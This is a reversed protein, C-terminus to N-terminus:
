EVHSNIDCTITQHTGSLQLPNEASSPAACLTWFLPRHGFNTLTYIGFSLLTQYYSCYCHTSFDSRGHNGHNKPTGDGEIVLSFSPTVVPAPLSM